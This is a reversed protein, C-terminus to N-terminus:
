EDTNGRWIVIGHLLHHGEQHPAPFKLCLEKKKFRKAPPEEFHPHGKSLNYIALATCSVIGAYTIKEWKATEDTLFSLLNGKEIQSYADDHHASSAFSRKSSANRGGRRVAAQDAPVVYDGHLGRMEISSNSFVALRLAWIDFFGFWVSALRLSGVLMLWWGLARM